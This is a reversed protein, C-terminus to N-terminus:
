GRPEGERRVIKRAREPQIGEVRVIKGEQMRYRWAIPEELEIGSARGRLRHDAILIISGDELETLETIDFHVSRDFTEFWDGFWRGVADRGKHIGDNMWTGEPIVLEVDAAYHSMARKWDRQNVADYQDRLVEANHEDV